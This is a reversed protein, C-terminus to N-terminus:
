AGLFQNIIAEAESIPNSIADVDPTSVVTKDKTGPFALDLSAVPPQNSATYVTQNKAANLAAKVARHSDLLKNYEASLDSYSKRAAAADQEAHEARRRFDLLTEQLSRLAKRTEGLDREKQNLENYLENIKNAMEQNGNPVSQEQKPAIVDNPNLRQRNQVPTFLFGASFGCRPPQISSVSYNDDDIGFFERLAATLIADDNNQM